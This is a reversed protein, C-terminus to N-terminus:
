GVSLFSSRNIVPTMYSSHPKMVNTRGAFIELDNQFDAQRCTPPPTEMSSLRKHDQEYLNKELVGITSDSILVSYLLDTIVVAVLSSILILVM